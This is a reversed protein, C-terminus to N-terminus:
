RAGGTIAAVTSPTGGRLCAVIPTPSPAAADVRALDLCLDYPAPGGGLPQYELVERGITRAELLGPRLERDPDFATMPIERGDLDRGVAEIALLDLVVAVDCRNAFTIGAVLGAAAADSVPEVALDLCGVTRHEGAFSGSLARFSGAKYGGCGAIAAATLLAALTRM